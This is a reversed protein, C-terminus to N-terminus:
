AARSMPITQRIADAPREEARFLWADLWRTLAITPRDVAHYFLWSATLSATLSAAAGTLSAATHSWGLDRCLLLYLGCGLSCTIPMHVLYLGFSARGLFALWRARLLEQVRPSLATTGILVVAVGPKWPVLFLGAAILGLAPGLTLTKRRTRQNHVWLDCLIMGMLFDVFFYDRRAVLLGAALAYLLWRRKLGGFLALFAYVLLSGALEIPMTWLVLNYPSPTIFTAWFADRAAGPWDPTFNYFSRLWPNAGEPDGSLGLAATRFQVMEQSYIAGTQMLLCAVLVSTSVPLMLRPYRRLAASGLATVSGKQFYTLSLVFGSLVFFIRVATHGDWLFRGPFRALTQLWFPIDAWQSGNRWYLAPWFTLIVHAVLVALSALGRIAEFCEWKASAASGAAPRADDPLIRM